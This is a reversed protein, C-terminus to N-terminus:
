RGRGESGLFLRIEPLQDITENFLADVRHDGLKPKSAVGGPERPLVGGVKGNEKPDGSVLCGSKESSESWGFVGFTCVL